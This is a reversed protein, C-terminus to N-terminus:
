PSGRWRKRFATEVEDATGCRSRAVRVGRQRHELLAAWAEQRAPPM